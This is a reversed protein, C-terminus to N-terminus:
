SHSMLVPVQLNRLVGRTAGGLIFQQMRSHGFAGMVLLGTGEVSACHQLALGIDQMDTHTEVFRPAVGHRVLWASLDALGGADIPKDAPATIVVVEDAKRLLPMADHLARSATGSGDWAVAIKAFPRTADPWTLPILMAPTGTGFIAAEATAASSELDTFAIMTLDHHRAAATVSDPAEGFRVRLPRSAVQLGVHKDASAILNKSAEQSAREIEAGKGVLGMFAASWRYQLRPVAVELPSLTAHTAFTSALRLLRAVTEETEPVPHTRLPILVDSLM